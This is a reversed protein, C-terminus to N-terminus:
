RYEKLADEVTEFLRLEGPLDMLGFVKNLFPNLEALCLQGGNERARYYVSFLIAIGTSNIYDLNKLNFIINYNNDEFIRYFKRNFEQSNTNTVRGNFVVVRVVVDDATREEITLTLDPFELRNEEVIRICM